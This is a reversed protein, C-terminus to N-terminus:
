FFTFAIHSVPQTIRSVERVVRLPLFSKSPHVTFFAHRPPNNSTAPHFAELLLLRRHPRPRYTTTLRNLYIGRHIDHDLIEAVLNSDFNKNLNIRSRKAMSPVNKKLWIGKQHKADAQPTRTQFNVRCADTAHIMSVHRIACPANRSAQKLQCSRAASLPFREGM